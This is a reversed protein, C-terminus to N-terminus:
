AGTSFRGGGLDDTAPNIPSNAATRFAHLGLFGIATDATGTVRGSDNIGSAASTSGGLTGLDHVSYSPQAAGFQAAVSVLLILSIPHTTYMASAPANRTGNVTPQISIGAM